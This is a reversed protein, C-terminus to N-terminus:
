FTSSFTLAHLALQRLAIRRLVSLLLPGAVDDNSSAGRGRNIHIAIGREELCSTLYSYRGRGRLQGLGGMARITMERVWM